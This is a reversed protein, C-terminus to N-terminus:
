IAMKSSTRREVMIGQINRSSKELPQPRIANVFLCVFDCVSAVSFLVVMAARTTLIPKNSVASRHRGIDQKEENRGTCLLDIWTPYPGCWNFGTTYVATSAPETATAQKSCWDMRENTTRSCVIAACLLVRSASDHRRSAAHRPVRTVPLLAPSTHRRCRLATWRIAGLHSVTLVAVVASQSAPEQRYYFCM